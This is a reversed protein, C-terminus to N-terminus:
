KQKKENQEIDGMLKVETDSLIRDISLLIAIREGIKGIGDMFETDISAGFAPVEEIQEADIDLVESVRDVIVGTTVERGERMINVVVICTERTYEQEEMEFRTRLDIVPVIKGRLNVVGKVFDPTRPVPTIEILGLIEKVQQIDVGYEEDALFFTLFKGGSIGSENGDNKKQTEAM